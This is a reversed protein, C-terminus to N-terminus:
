PISGGSLTLIAGNILHSQNNLLWIIQEAADDVTGLEGWPNRDANVQRTVTSCGKNMGGDLMDFVVGLCRREKVGLELSLVDVLGPIMSKGVSYLPMRFYHRGPKAFTSGILILPAKNVGANAILAALAQIDKLPGAIHQEIALAPEDLDIMRQNDPTPWACHVIAAVQEQGAAVLEGLLEKSEIRGSIISRQVALGRGGLKMLLAGGLGGSAGTVLVVPEGTSVHMVQPVTAPASMRHSGFEYSAEVYILGSVADSVSAEVRGIDGSIAVVQGRVKLSAPPLIPSVFRLKMGYLLCDKGPLYMGALRSILGASFAGHLVQSGYISAAAHQQDTHLPNWDGSLQAFHVCDEPTVSLDFVVDKSM